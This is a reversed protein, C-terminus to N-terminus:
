AGAPFTLVFFRKLFERLHCHTFRYEGTLEYYLADALMYPNRHIKSDCIADETDPQRKSLPHFFYYEENNLAVEISVRIYKDNKSDYVPVMFDPKSM